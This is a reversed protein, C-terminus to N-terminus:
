VTNSLHSKHAVHGICIFQKIQIIIALSFLMKKNNCHGAIFPKSLPSMFYSLM